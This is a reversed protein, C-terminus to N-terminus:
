IHEAVDRARKIAEQLNKEELEKGMDMPQANVFTIDTIGVFEFIARLYPEQFDFKRMEESTYSGGRSTCIVMKKNKILGESGKSTYQYLYKPQVIIDIYQKLVYPVNFNWMPTGILYFDASKFREVHQVIEEWAEKLEGFLNKGGMLVYKGDVRKMTMSPLAEKWLNLEDVVFDRNKKLFENLFSKAVQVTRSEEERPSAEIYLIKRMCVEKQSVKAVKKQFLSKLLIKKFLYALDKKGKVM